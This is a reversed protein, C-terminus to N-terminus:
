LTASLTESPLLPVVFHVFNAVLAQSSSPIGEPPHLRGVTGFATTIPTKACEVRGTPRGEFDGLRGLPSLLPDGLQSLSASRVRLGSGYLLARMYRRLWLVYADETVLAKHQPRIVQRMRDIAQAENM